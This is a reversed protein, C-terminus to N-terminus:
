QAVAQAAIENGRPSLDVCDLYIPNEVSDFVNGLFLFEGTTAARRQAEQFIPIVAQNLSESIKRFSDAAEQWLGRYAAL